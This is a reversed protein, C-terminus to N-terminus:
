AQETVTGAPEPEEALLARGAAIQDAFASRLM